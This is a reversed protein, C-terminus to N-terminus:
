LFAINRSEAIGQKIYVYSCDVQHGKDAVYFHSINQHLRIWKVRVKRVSPAWLLLRDTVGLPMPINHGETFNSKSQRHIFNIYTKLYM